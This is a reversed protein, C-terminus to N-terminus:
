IVEGRKQGAVRSGAPLAARCLEDVCLRCRRWIISKACIVYGIASGIAQGIHRLRRISPCRLRRRPSWGIFVYAVTSGRQEVPLIMAGTGAAQPTYLAGVCPVMAGFAILLAPIEDPQIL